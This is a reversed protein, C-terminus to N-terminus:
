RHYVHKSQGVYIKGTVKCQIMYIGCIENFDSYYSM